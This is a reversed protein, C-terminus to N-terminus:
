RQRDMPLEITAGSKGDGGSFGVLFALASAFAVRPFDFMRGGRSCGGCARMRHSSVESTMMPPVGRAQVLVDDSVCGMWGTGHSPPRRVIRMDPAHEEGQQPGETDVLSSLSGEV